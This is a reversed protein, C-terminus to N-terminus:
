LWFNVPLDVRLWAYELVEGIGKRWAETQPVIEADVQLSGAVIKPVKMRDAPIGFLSAINRVLYQADFFEEVSVEIGISLTIADVTKIQLAHEIGGCLVVYIKNEWQAFYNTACPDDVTPKVASFNYGQLGGYLATRGCM